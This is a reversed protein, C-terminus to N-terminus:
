NSCNLIKQLECSDDKFFECKGCKKPLLSWRLKELNKNHLRETKLKKCVEKNAKLYHIKADKRKAYSLADSITNEGIRHTPEFIVVKKHSEVAQKILSTTAGARPVKLIPVICDKKSLVEFALRDQQTFVETSYSCDFANEILIQQSMMNKM